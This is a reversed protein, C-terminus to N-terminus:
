MRSSKPETSLFVHSCTLYDLFFFDIRARNSWNAVLFLASQPDSACSIITLM